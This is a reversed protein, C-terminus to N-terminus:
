RTWPRDVKPRCSLDAVFEDFDAYSMELLTLGQIDLDLDEEEMEDEAEEDSAWLDTETEGDASYAEEDVDMSSGDDSEEASSVDGSADSATEYDADSEGGDGSESEGESESSGGSEDTEETAGVEQESRGEEDSTRVSEDDQFDEDCAASRIEGGVDKLLLERLDACPGQPDLWINSAQKRRRGGHLINDTSVGCWGHRVGADADHEQETHLERAVAAEM